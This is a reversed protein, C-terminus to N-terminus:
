KKFLHISKPLHLTMKPYNKLALRIALDSYMDASMAFCIEMVESGTSPNQCTSLGKPTKELGIWHHPWQVCWSVHFFVDGYSIIWFKLTDSAMKPYNGTAFAVGSNLIDMQRDTWRDTVLVWWGRLIMGILWIEAERLRNAMIGILWLAVWGGHGGGGRLIM